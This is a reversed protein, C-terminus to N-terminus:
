GVNEIYAIELVIKPIKIQNFYGNKIRKVSASKFPEYKEEIDSRKMAKLLDKRLGLSELARAWVEERRKEQYYTLLKMRAM